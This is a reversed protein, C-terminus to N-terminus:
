RPQVLLVLYWLVAVALGLLWFGAQSGSKTPKDPQGPPAKTAKPPRASHEARKHRTEPQRKAPPFSRDFAQKYHAYGLGKGFWGFDWNKM